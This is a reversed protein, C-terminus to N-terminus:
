QAKKVLDVILNFAPAAAAGEQAVKGIATRVALLFKDMREATWSREQSVCAEFERIYLPALNPPVPALSQVLFLDARAKVDALPVLSSVLYPGKLGEAGKQALLIARARDYDYDALAQEATTGPKQSQKVPLYTINLEPPSFSPADGAEVLLKLYAGILERYLQQESDAAPPAAFLLYSYLGYRPAEKQGRVLFERVTTKVPPKAASAQEAMPVWLHAASGSVHWSVQAREPGHVRSFRGAAGLLAGLLDRNRGLADKMAEIFTGNEATGAPEMAVVAATGEAAPAATGRWAGDTYDRCGGAVLVKLEAATAGLQAQVGRLGIGRGALDAGEFDVPILYTDTETQACYGAYFLVGTSGEGLRGAFERIAGRMGALAANEVVEGRFGFVGLMQRMTRADAVAAPLAKGAYEGNGIILAAREGTQAQAPVICLALLAGAATGKGKGERGAIRAVGYVLVWCLAFVAVYEATGLGAEPRWLRFALGAALTIAAAIAGTRTARGGLKEFFALAM